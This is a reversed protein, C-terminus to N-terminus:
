APPLPQRQSEPLPHQELLAVVGLVLVTQAFILCAAFTTQVYPLLIASIATAATVLYLCLVATRRSMGRAVLRHSFHNNDGVFPSKGRAIRIASVVLLDYLPLALVIV